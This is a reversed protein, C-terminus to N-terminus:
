RSAVTGQFLALTDDIVADISFERNIVDQGSESLQRRLDPNQILRQVADAIAPATAEVVLASQTSDLTPAIGCSDTCVSPLGVRLAELLSMPFPENISPLVYIDAARMRAEVAEYPLAGEYTVADSLGLADILKLVSPLSGDDPGVITFTARVGRDKLIGAMEVFLEPQKRPHLRACYLVDLQEFTRAARTRSSSRQLGNPLIRTTYTAGIVEQVALTEADSLVFRLNASRLLRRTMTLDTLKARLRTDPIIMGHTQVAFPVHARRLFQMTSISVLDRGAHVHAIDFTNANRRLWSFLGPSFLGAFSTRPIVQYARFLHAPCGALESPPPGSGSWGGAIVADHGRRRLETVQNMSVSLPGGYGGDPSVTTVLHLIRM